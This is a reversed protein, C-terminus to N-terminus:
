DDSPFARARIVVRIRLPWIRSKTSLKWETGLLIVFSLRARIVVPTHLLAMGLVKHETKRASVTNCPYRCSYPGLVFWMRSKTSLKVQRISRMDAAFATNCPYRCPYPGFLAVDSVKHEANRQRVALTDKSYLCAGVAPRTSGRLCFRHQV